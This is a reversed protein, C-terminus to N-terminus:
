RQFPYCYWFVLFPHRKFFFHTNPISYIPDGTLLFHMDANKPPYCDICFRIGTIKRKLLCFRKKYLADTKIFIDTSFM